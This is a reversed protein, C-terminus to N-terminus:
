PKKGTTGVDGGPRSWVEVRNEIPQLTMLYAYIAGLDAESLGGYSHWPMPSNFSGIPLPKALFEAQDFAKFHRVFRQRSWAGLGTEHSTLNSSRVVGDVGPVSFERGGAFLRDKDMHGGDRPTHCSACFSLDVLYKGYALENSADPCQPNEWPKPIFNVIMNLPFNLRRQHASVPKGSLGRIYAVIAQLDERCLSRFYPYPMVPFLSDGSANVGAVISHAVEGDSWEGLAEPTINGARLHGPFGNSEDYIAGGAGEEGPKVPGSFYTWDRPSHCLVCGVVHNVLYDGRGILEPADAVDM